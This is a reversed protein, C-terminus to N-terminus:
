GFRRAVGPQGPRYQFTQRTRGDAGWPDAFEDKKLKIKDPLGDALDGLVLAEHRGLYLIVNSLNAAPSGNLCVREATGYSMACPSGDSQVRGNKDVFIRKCLLAGDHKKVRTLRIEESM